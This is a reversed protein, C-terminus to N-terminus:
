LENILYWAWLAVTILVVTIDLRIRSQLRDRYKRFLALLGSWVFVTILFSFVFFAVGGFDNCSHNNRCIEIILVMCLGGAFVFSLLVESCTHLLRHSLPRSPTKDDIAM